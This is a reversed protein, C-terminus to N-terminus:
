RAPQRGYYQDLLEFRDLRTPIAMHPSQTIRLAPGARGEFPAWTPLDGGNPNGTRAFNVWNRSVMASLAADEPRWQWSYANLNKFSYAMDIGHAAGRRREVYRGVPIPPAHELDYYFVPNTGKSRALRAWTFNQWGFVRDGLMDGSAEFATTDDVAPYVELCRSALPGYETRVYQRYGDLTEIGPLGVAENLTSGTIM